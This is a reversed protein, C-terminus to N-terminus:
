INPHINGDSKEKLKLFYKSVFITLFNWNAFHYFLYIKGDEKEMKRVLKNAESYGAVISMVDVQRAEKAKM